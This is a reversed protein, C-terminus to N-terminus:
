IVINPRNAIQNKMHISDEIVKENYSKWHMLHGFLIHHQTECFGILNNPDLEKSPDIHFPTIHHVTKAKKFCVACQPHEKLYEKRIKNWQNSRKAQDKIHFTPAIFQLLKFINM